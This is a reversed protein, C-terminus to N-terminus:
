ANAKVLANYRSKLRAATSKHIVGVQAAKDLASYMRQLTEPAKAKEPADTSSTEALLTRRLNSIHNRVRQNRATKRTAKRTLYNRRWEKREEPSRDEVKNIKIKVPNAM